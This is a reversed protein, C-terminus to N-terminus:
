LDKVIYVKYVRIYIVLVIWIKLEKFTLLDWAQGGELGKLQEYKNTNEVIIQLQQDTFYQIKALKNMKSVTNFHEEYEQKTFSKKEAMKIIAVLEHDIIEEGHHNRKFTFFYLSDLVISSDTAIDSI